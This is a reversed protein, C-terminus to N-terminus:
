SVLPDAAEPVFMMNGVFVDQFDARASLEVYRTAGPIRECEEM